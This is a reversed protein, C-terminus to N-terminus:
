AHMYMFTLVHIYTHIYVCTIACFWTSFPKIALKGKGVRKYITTRPDGRVM